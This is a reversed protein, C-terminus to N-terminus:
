SRLSEPLRVFGHGIYFRAAAEDLADVVVMSSGATNASESARKLADALLIAGL